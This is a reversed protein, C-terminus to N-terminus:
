DIVVGGVVLAIAKIDTKPIIFPMYKPNDSICVLHKSDKAEHLRKIIIGQSITYIVYIKNWQIYLLEDVKICAVLDGGNYKPFMSDGTVRILFDAKKINPLIYHEEIEYGMVSIDGGGWGAFAEIPILPIANLIDSSKQAYIIENNTLISGKGTVLWNINLEPYVSVIKEIINSSIAGDATRQKAFYGNSVGIKKSFESVSLQQNEIFHYINQITSM